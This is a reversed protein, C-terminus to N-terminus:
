QIGYYQSIKRRASESISSPSKRWGLSILLSTLWRALSRVKSSPMYDSLHFNRLLKRSIHRLQYDISDNKRMALLAVLEVSPIKLLTALQDIDVSSKRKFLSTFDLVHVRDSGFTQELKSLTSDFKLFERLKNDMEPDLFLNLWDDFVMYCGRKSYIDFPYMDYLSRLIDVPSRKILLVSPSGFCAKCRRLVLDLEPQTHILQINESSIVNVTNNPLNDVISKADEVLAEEEEIGLYSQKWLRQIARVQNSSLICKAHDEPLLCSVHPLSQFVSKQLTSSGAKPYGIHFILNAM